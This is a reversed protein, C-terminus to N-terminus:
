SKRQSAEKRLKQGAHGPLKLRAFSSVMRYIEKNVLASHRVPISHLKHLLPDPGLRGAM